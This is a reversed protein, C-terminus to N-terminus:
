LKARAQRLRELLSKDRDLRGAFRHVAAAVSGYDIGGVAEGLEQLKLGCEKRGLYLVLDRGWDGYKPLQPM